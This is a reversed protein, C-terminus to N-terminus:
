RAIVTSAAFGALLLLVVVGAVTVDLHGNEANYTFLHIVGTM